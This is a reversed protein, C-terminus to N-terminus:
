AAALARTARFMFDAVRGSVAAKWAADDVYFADRMERNISARLPTDRNPRAHLWHDARLANLVTQMPQTGFELAVYTIETQPLASFLGDAVSGGVTASVSKDGALNTVEPGYWQRARQVDTDSGLSIPEGYGSPGLGTHIDLVALRKVAPSLFDKLIKRLSDASWTPKSGGFFLGTPRSYQGSSVATQYARLGHQAAYAGLQADANQRHEGTWEEPVLWEHLREYETSAPLPASFDVFNRNLDVGDENVRRCWAFGHPNLAHVFILATRESFARAFGNQLLSVQCGSGCFGEVGHTGSIVLLARDTDRSASVAVDISLEEGRPGSLSPHILATLRAGTARAAERFKARAEAYNASFCSSISM